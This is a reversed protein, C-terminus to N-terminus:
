PLSDAVPPSFPSFHASQNKAPPLSSTRVRPGKLHGLREELDPPTRDESV